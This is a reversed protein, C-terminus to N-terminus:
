GVSSRSYKVTLRVSSRAYTVTVRRILSFIVQDGFPHALLINASGDPLRSMHESTREASRSINESMRRTVSYYTREDTPKVSFM